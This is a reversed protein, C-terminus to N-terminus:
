VGKRASRWIEVGTLHAKSFPPKRFAPGAESRSRSHKNRAMTPSCADTLVDRGLVGDLGHERYARMEGALIPLVPLWLKHPPLYLAVHHQTMPQRSQHADVLVARTPLAPLQAVINRDVITRSSATDILLRAPVLRPIPQGANRLFTQHAANAGILLAIIPGEPGIPFTLGV